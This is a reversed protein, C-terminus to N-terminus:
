LKSKQRGKDFYYDNLECSAKGSLYIKDEFKLNNFIQAKISPCKISNSEKIFGVISEKNENVFYYIIMAFICLLALGKLNKIITGEKKENM